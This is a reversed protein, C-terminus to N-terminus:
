TSSVVAAPWEIKTLAKRHLEPVRPRILEYRDRAMELLWLADAVNNDSGMYGLRKVAEVLVTAKDANGKGTAYQKLSAPPVDVWSIGLDYLSMRIVGGLEAIERTGAQAKAMFAYGEIVVVDTDAVFDLVEGRVRDIREFGRTTPKITHTSVKGTVYEADHVAVGTATLSLDLAVIRM